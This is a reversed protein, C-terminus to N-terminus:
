KVKRPRGRGRKVIMTPKNDEGEESDIDNKGSGMSAVSTSTPKYTHLFRKGEPDVREFSYHNAAHRKVDTVKHGAKTYSAAIEQVDTYDKAM